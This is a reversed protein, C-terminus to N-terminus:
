KITSLRWIQNVRLHLFESSYLKLDYSFLIMYWTNIPLWYWLFVHSHISLSSHTRLISYGSRRVFYLAHHLYPTNPTTISIILDAVFKAKCDMDVLALRPDLTCMSDQLITGIKIIEYVTICLHRVKLPLNWHKYLTKSTVTLGSLQM